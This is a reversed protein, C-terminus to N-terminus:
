LDHLDLSGYDWLRLGTLSLSPSRSVSPLSLSIFCSLLLNLDGGGGGMLRCQAGGAQSGVSDGGRQSGVSDGGRQSGVSDGGRQSFGSSM